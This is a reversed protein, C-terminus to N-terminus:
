ARPNRAGRGGAAHKRGFGMRAREREKKQRAEYIKRVSVTDGDSKRTKREETEEEESVAAPRKLLHGKNLRDRSEKKWAAFKEGADKRVTRKKGMVEQLVVPSECVASRKNEYPIFNVDRYKEMNVTSSKLDKRETRRFAPGKETRRYTRVAEMMSGADSVGFVPHVEIGQVDVHLSGRVVGTDVPHTKLYSKYSEGHSPHIDVRQAAEQVGAYFSVPVRGLGLYICSRHRNQACISGRDEGVCLNAGRTSDRRKESYIHQVFALYTPIDPSGVFSVLEGRETKGRNMRGVRHICTSRCRAYDFEIIVDVGRIDLGRCGVDTSILVDDRGKKFAEVSLARAEESESSSLIHAVRGIIRVAEAVGPCRRCTSVFVLVKKERHKKLLALLVPLKIGEQVFLNNIVLRSEELHETIGGLVEVTEIRRNLINRIHTNGTHHTASFLAYQPSTKIQGLIVDLSEALSRDEFIRDMEDIVVIDPNTIKDLIQADSITVEKKVNEEEVRVYLPRGPQSASIETMLRDLRGPTCIAVEFQGVVLYNLSHAFTGMGTFLAPHVGNSSLEKFTDSVQQAIEYTPVIVLARAKTFLTKKVREKLLRMLIPIVYAYTKGSGTRSIAIVDEGQLLKPIVKRQIPTAISYRINGLIEMPINMGKFSVSEKKQLETSIGFDM